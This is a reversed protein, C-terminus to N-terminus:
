RNSFDTRADGEKRAQNALSSDSRSVPLPHWIMDSEAGAVVSAGSEAEGEGEIDAELERGEAARESAANL